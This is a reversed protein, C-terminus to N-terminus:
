LDAKLQLELYGITEISQGVEASLDIQSDHVSANSTEIARVLHEIDM